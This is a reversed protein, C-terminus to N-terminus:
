ALDAGPTSGRGERICMYACACTSCCLLTTMLGLELGLELWLGLKIGLGLGLGLGLALGLGLELRHLDLLVTSGFIDLLSALFIPWSFMLLREKRERLREGTQRIAVLRRIAAQLRRAM